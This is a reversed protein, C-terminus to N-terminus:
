LRQVQGGGTPAGQGAHQGDERLELAVNQAVADLGSDSLCALLSPRM